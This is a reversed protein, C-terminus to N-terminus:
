SFKGFKVKLTLNQYSDVFDEQLVDGNLFAESVVEGDIYDSRGLVFAM